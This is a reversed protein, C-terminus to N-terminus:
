TWRNLGYQLIVARPWTAADRFNQLNGIHCLKEKKTKRMKKVAVREKEGKKKKQKQRLQHAKKESIKKRYIHNFAVSKALLPFFSFICVCM